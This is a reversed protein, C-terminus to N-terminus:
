APVGDAQGGLPTATRGSWLCRITQQGSGWRRPTAAEAKEAELWYRQRQFRMPESAAVFRAKSAARERGGKEGPGGAVGHSCAACSLNAAPLESWGRGAGERRCPSGVVVRRRARREGASLPGDGLWRTACEAEVFVGHGDGILEAALALDWVAVTQGCTEPVLLSRGLAVNGEGARAEGDGTSVMAWMVWGARRSTDSPASTEWSRWPDPDMRPATAGPTTGCQGSPWFLPRGEGLGAPRGWASLRKPELGLCVTRPGPNHEVVRWRYGRGSGSGELGSNWRRRGPL